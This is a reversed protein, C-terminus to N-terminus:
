ENPAGEQALQHIKRLQNGTLNLSNLWEGATQHPQPYPADFGMRWLEMWVDAAPADAPMALVDPM